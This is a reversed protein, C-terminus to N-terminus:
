ANLWPPTVLGLPCLVRAQLRLQLKINSNGRAAEAFAEPKLQKELFDDKTGVDILVARVPGDYGKVQLVRAHM